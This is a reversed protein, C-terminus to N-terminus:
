ARILDLVHRAGPVVRSLFQEQVVRVRDHVQDDREGVIREPFSHMGARLWRVEVVAGRRVELRVGDDDRAELAIRNAGDDHLDL